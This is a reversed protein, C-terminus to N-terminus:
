ARPRLVSIALNGDGVVRQREVELQADAALGDMAGHAMFHRYGAWHDGGAMREIATTMGKLLWGQARRVPADHYDVVLIHGQRRLVRRAEALVALRTDPSMEHLVMSFAVWDFREDPFPMATADGDRLQARDGLRRRAVALMAQSADLGWAECGADLYLELLTGTGCGVDLVVAGPEPRAFRLMMLKLKRNLPEILIDYWRAIAQYSDRQQNSM